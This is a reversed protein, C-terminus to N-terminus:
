VPGKFELDEVRATGVGGYPRMPQRMGKAALGIEQAQRMIVVNM